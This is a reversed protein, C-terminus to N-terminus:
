QFLAVAGPFDFCEDGAQEKQRIPNLDSEEMESMVGDIGVVRDEKEAGDISRGSMENAVVPVKQIHPRKIILEYSASGRIKQRRHV